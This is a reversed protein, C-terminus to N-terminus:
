SKRTSFNNESYACPNIVKSYLARKFIIVGTSFQAFSLFLRERDRDRRKKEWVWVHINHDIFMYVIKLMFVTLLVCIKIALREQLAGLIHNFLYFSFSASVHVPLLSLVSVPQNMSYFMLIAWSHSVDLMEFYPYLHCAQTLLLLINLDQTRCFILAKNRPSLM